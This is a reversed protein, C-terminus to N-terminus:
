KKETEFNYLNEYRYPSFYPYGEGIDNHEYCVVNGEQSDVIDWAIQYLQKLDKQEWRMESEPIESDFYKRNEQECWGSYKGDAPVATMDLVAHNDDLEVIVAFLNYDNDYVIEGVKLPHNRQAM